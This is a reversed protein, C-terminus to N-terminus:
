SGHRPCSGSCQAAVFRIDPIREAGFSSYSDELDMEDRVILDFVPTGDQKLEIIEFYRGSENETWLGGNTVLTNGTTALRDADSMYSSYFSGSDSSDYTWAERVNMQDEDIAFEVARSYYPLVAEEYAPARYNGNDYLIVGLETVDVAHQHFQWILDGEPELLADEWEPGWNAHNGLIWVLSGTDREVKFVADQHRSSVVYANSNPDYVVANCHSWDLAGPYYRDWYWHFSGHGVRTPDLVDLVHIENVVEGERTFETLVDGAVLATTTSANPDTSSTPFDSVSRTEVAFVLLNGNPMEHFAHHMATADVPVSLERPTFEGPFNEAYWGGVVEGLWNMEVLERRGTLYALNGNALLRHDDTPGQTSYYWRVQGRSDVVAIYGSGRMNFLTMGPEMQSSESHVLRAQQLPTPLAPPTWDVPEAVSEGGDHNITVTVEYEVDGILGLIPHEHSRTPEPLELTWSDGGDTGRIELRAATELKTEFRVIGVLPARENGYSEFSPSVLFEPADLDPGQGGAGAAGADTAFESGGSGAV